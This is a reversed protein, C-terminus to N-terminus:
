SAATPDVLRFGYGRVSAIQVRSHIAELRKRLRKVASRAPSSDGFYPTRWAERTLDEFSWARVPGRALAELVAFEVPPLDLGSDRVRTSRLTRDITLDGFTRPQEMPADRLSAAQGETQLWSAIEAVTPAVDLDVGSRVFLVVVHGSRQPPDAISPQTRDVPQTAAEWGIVTADALELAPQGM